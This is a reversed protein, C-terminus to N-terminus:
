RPIWGSRTVPTLSTYRPWALSIGAATMRRQLDELDNPSNRIARPPLNREVAYAATLGAAEGISWETPHERYAGNSIRTTGINKAGAILNDIRAPILAGLPIQFPLADVDVSNRQTTTPHLDIRYAGIGVSDPFTEAEAAGERAEVGIHQELIRFEPVIRRSERFYPQMAFGDVTGTTHPRLRLGAYGTGGDPRPAETQMWYLFSRSLDKSEQMAQSKAVTDVGLVPRSWYDMQPWNALTIDSRYFGSEHHHRYAIRRAHWLDWAWVDDRTGAFLQRVRPEHTVHDSVTWSFQPGPWDPISIERWHAYGSPRQIVHNEGPLYDMAFCWTIAQQDLPDAAPLAHLEGTDGQAEAGIVHEAGALPLLDGLETADIVIEASVLAAVGSQEHTFTVTAIRDWDADVATAEYGQLLWIRGSSIYPALLQNIVAAAVQPEHCIGSVNGAGPNLNVDRRASPILPFHERYYNRIGSRLQHYSRSGISQEAWPHEDPPVAQATLQGGLWPLVETLVVERGARAAALAAAVGGLGGGVVLIEASM